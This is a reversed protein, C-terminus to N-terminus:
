RTALWYGAFVALVSLLVSGLIYGTAALWDGRNILEMTEASFASFTTFGGLVGVTLFLKWSEAAQDAAGVGAFLGLVLGMVLSGLVNITFTAVPFGVAGFLRLSLLGLGYRAAGGLGAGLFVIVFNM